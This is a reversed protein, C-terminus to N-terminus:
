KSAHSVSRIDLGELQLCNIESQTDAEHGNPTVTTFVIKCTPQGSMNVEPVDNVIFNAVQLTAPPVLLSDSQGPRTLWAINGYPYEIRGSSISAAADGGNSILLSVIHHEVSSLAIRPEARPTHIASKISSIAPGLIALLAVLLSLVTSSASFHRRWDQYSDCSVCKKAALRIPEACSSCPKTEIKPEAKLM